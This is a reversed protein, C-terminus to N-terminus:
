GCVLQYSTGVLLFDDFSPPQVLGLHFLFIRLDFQIMKKVFDPQFYRINLFWRDRRLPTVPEFNPM